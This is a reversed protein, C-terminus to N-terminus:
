SCTPSLAPRAGTAEAITQEIRANLRELEDLLEDQRSDLEELLSRGPIDNAM